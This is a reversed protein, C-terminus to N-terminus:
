RKKSSTLLWSSNEHLKNKASRRLERNPRQLCRDSSPVLNRQHHRLRVAGGAPSHLHLHARHM